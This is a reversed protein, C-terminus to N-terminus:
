WCSPCTFTFIVQQLITLCSPLHNKCLMVLCCFLHHDLLLAPPEPINFHAYWPNWVLITYRLYTIYNIYVMRTRFGQYTASFTNKTIIIMHTTMFNPKLATMLQMNQKSTLLNHVSGGAAEPGCLFAYLTYYYYYYYHYYYYNCEFACNSIKYLRRVTGRFTELVYVWTASACDHAFWTCCM